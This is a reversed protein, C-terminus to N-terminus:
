FYLIILLNLLPSFGHSKMLVCYKFNFALFIALFQHFDDVDLSFYHFHMLCFIPHHIGFHVLWVKNKFQFVSNYDKFKLAGIHIDVVLSSKAEVTGYNVLDFDFGLFRYFHM